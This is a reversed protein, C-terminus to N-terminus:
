PDLWTDQFKLDLFEPMRDYIPRMLGNGKTTIFLAARKSKSGM